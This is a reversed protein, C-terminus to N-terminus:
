MKRRLFLGTLGILFLLMSNPEPVPGVPLPGGGLDIASNLVAIKDNVVGLEVWGYIDGLTADNIMYALYTSQSQDVLLENFTTPIKRDPAGEAIEEKVFYDSRSDFYERGMIDGSEAKVATLLYQLDYDYYAACQILLPNDIRSQVFCMWYDGGGISSAHYLDIKGYGDLCADGYRVSASFASGSAMIAMFAVVAISNGFRPVYRMSHGESHFSPENGGMPSFQM